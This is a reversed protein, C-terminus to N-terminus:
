LYSDGKGEVPSTAMQVWLPQAIRADASSQQIRLLESIGKQGILQWAGNSLNTMDVSELSSKKM